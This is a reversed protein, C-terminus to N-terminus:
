GPEARVAPPQNDRALLSTTLGVEAQSAALALFPNVTRTNLYEWLVRSCCIPKVKPIGRWDEITGADRISARPRRRESRRSLRKVDFLEKACAKLITARCDPHYRTSM